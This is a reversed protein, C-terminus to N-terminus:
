AAAAGRAILEARLQRAARSDEQELAALDAEFRPHDNLQCYARARHVLAENQWSPDDESLSLIRDAARLLGPWDGFAECADAVVM